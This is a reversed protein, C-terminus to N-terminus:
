VLERHNYDKQPPPTEKCFSQMTHGRQLRLNCAVPKRRIDIVLAAASEFIKLVDRTKKSWYFGTTHTQEAPWTQCNTIIIVAGHKHCYVLPILLWAALRVGMGGQRGHISLAQSGEWKLSKM